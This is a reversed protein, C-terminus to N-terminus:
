LISAIAASAEDDAPAGPGSTLASLSDGGVSGDDINDDVVPFEMSCDGNASAAAATASEGVSSKPGVEEFEDDDDDDANDVDGDCNDGVVGAVAVGSTKANDRGSGVASDADGVDPLLRARKPSVPRGRGADDFALPAVQGAPQARESDLQQRAASVSLQDSLLQLEPDASSLVRTRLESMLIAAQLRKFRAEMASWANQALATFESAAGVDDGSDPATSSPPATEETDQFLHFRLLNATAEDATRFPDPQPQFSGSHSQQPQQQQGPALAVIRTAMVPQQQQKALLRQLLRERDAVGALRVVAEDVQTKQSPTLRLQYRTGEVRYEVLVRMEGYKPEALVFSDADDASGSSSAAASQTSAPTASNPETSKQQQEIVQHMKNAQKIVDNQMQRLKRLEEEIQPTKATNKQLADVQLTLNYFLKFEEPKMSIVRDQKTTLVIRGNSEAVDKVGPLM